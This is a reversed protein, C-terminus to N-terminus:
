WNLKSEDEVFQGLNLNPIEGIGSLSDDLEDQEPEQLHFSNGDSEIVIEKTSNETSTSTPETAENESLDESDLNAAVIFYALPWSNGYFVIFKNRCWKSYQFSKDM